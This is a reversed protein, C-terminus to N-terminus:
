PAQDELDDLRFERILETPDVPVGPVLVYRDEPVTFQLRVGNALTLEYNGTELQWEVGAETIDNTPPTRDAGDRTLSRVTTAGEPSVLRM